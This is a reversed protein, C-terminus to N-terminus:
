ELQAARDTKLSEHHCQRGAQAMFFPNERGGASSRNQLISVVELLARLSRVKGGIIVNGRYFFLGHFGKWEPGKLSEALDSLIFFQLDPM